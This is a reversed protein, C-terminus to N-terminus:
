QLGNWYSAPVNAGSEQALRLDAAAQTKNGINKYALGRQMLFIGRQRDIGLAQNYDEIAAQHQGLRSKGLGREYWVEADYPNMSLYATHDQIALEYNGSQM